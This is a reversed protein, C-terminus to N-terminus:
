TRQWEGMRCHGCLSVLAEEQWPHLFRRGEVTSGCFGCSWRTMLAAEDEFVGLYTMEVVQECEPCIAERRMGKGAAELIAKRSYPETIGEVRVLYSDGRQQSMLKWGLEECAKAVQNM